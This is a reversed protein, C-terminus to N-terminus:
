NSRDYKESFLFSLLSLLFYSFDIKFDVFLIKSLIGGNLSFTVFVFDVGALESTLSFLFLLPQLFNQFSLIISLYIKINKKNIVFIDFFDLFLACYDEDFHRQGIFCDSLTKESAFFLWIELETVLLQASKDLALETWVLKKDNEEKIESNKM